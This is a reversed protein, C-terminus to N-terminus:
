NRQERPYRGATAAKRSQQDNSDVRTVNSMEEQLGRIQLRTALLSSADRTFIRSLARRLWSTRGATCDARRPTTLCSTRRRSRRRAPARRRIRAMRRVGPHPSLLATSVLFSFFVCGFMLRRRSRRFGTLLHLCLVLTDACYDTRTTGYPDLSFGTLRLM